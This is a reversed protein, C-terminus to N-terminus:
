FRELKATILAKDTTLSPCESPSASTVPTRVSLPSVTYGAGHWNFNQMSAGEPMPTYGLCPFYRKALSEFAAGTCASEETEMKRREALKKYAALTKVQHTFMMNFVIAGDIAIGDKERFMFLGNWWARLERALGRTYITSLQKQELARRDRYRKAYASPDLLDGLEGIICLSFLDLTGELTRIDPIHPSPLGSSQHDFQGRVLVHHFYTILRQLLFHSDLSHETNTISRSLSFMHFVCFVTERITSTAYFHGGHCIAAKPTVVYHPTNPRM